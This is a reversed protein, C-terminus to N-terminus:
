TKPRSIIGKDNLGAIFFWAGIGEFFLGIVFYFQMFQAVVRSGRSEDESTFGAPGFTGFSPIKGTILLM